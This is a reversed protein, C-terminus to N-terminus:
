TAAPPPANSTLLWRESSGTQAHPLRPRGSPARAKSPGPDEGHRPRERAADDGEAASRAKPDTGPGFFKYLGLGILFLVFIIVALLPGTFIALAVVVILLLPLLYVLYM